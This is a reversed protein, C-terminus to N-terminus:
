ATMMLWQLPATLDHPSAGHGVVNIRESPRRVIELEDKKDPLKGGQASIGYVRMNWLESNASLFQELMPRNAKLWTDPTINAEPNIVDWASAIVAIKRPRPPWPRRNAVQLFEVIKAEEPIDEPRFPKLCEDDKEMDEGGEGDNEDLIMDGFDDIMLTDGERDANTFLMIGDTLTLADHLDKQCQGIVAPQEFAEGRLDPIILVAEANTSRDRVNVKVWGETASKTRQVINCSLWEEELRNLHGEDDALTTLELEAPVENAVLLHRLAGIYTSKGSAPVGIVLLTTM